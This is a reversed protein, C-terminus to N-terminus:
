KLGTAAQSANEIVIFSALTVEKLEEWPILWEGGQQIREVFM